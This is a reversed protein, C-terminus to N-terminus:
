DRPAVRGSVLLRDAPDTVAFTIAADDIRAGFGVRGPLRVPRRFSVTAEGREPLRGELAALCRAASWMGHAIATRFGFPRATLASLHIPNRDGSVAAYRRGLGAPLRWWADAPLPEPDPEAPGDGTSPLRVSRSLYTSRGVWVEDGGARVRTLVDITAGRHHAALNAASVEVDLAEDVEVPRYWTLVQRTHVLGPLRFPFDGGAMLTLAPAFGLLHPYAPPLPGTLTCGCVRAYRLLHAPDIRVDDRRVVTSPVSTAAPRPLLGRLYSAAVGM